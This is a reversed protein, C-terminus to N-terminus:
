ITEKDMTKDTCCCITRIFDKGSEHDFFAKGVVIRDAGSEICKKGRRFNLCGDVSITATKRMEKLMKKVATIRIYTEPFFKAHEIGPEASMVLIDDLYPLYAKIEETGTGPSLAMSSKIGHRHIYELLEVNQKRGHAEVHITIMVPKMEVYERLISKSLCAMFHFDYDRPFKEKIRKIWCPNFGYLPVFHGDMVDIHLTDVGHAPIKDIESGLQLCDAGFLSVSLEAM